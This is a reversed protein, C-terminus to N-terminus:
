PRLAPVRRGQDSRNIRGPLEQRMLVNTATNAALFCSELAMAMVEQPEVKPISRPGPSVRGKWWFADEELM